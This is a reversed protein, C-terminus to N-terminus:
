YDKFDIKKVTDIIESGVLAAITVAKILAIRKISNSCIKSSIEIYGPFDNFDFIEPQKILLLKDM